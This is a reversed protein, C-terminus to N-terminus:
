IPRSSVATPTGFSGCTQPRSRRRTSAREWTPCCSRRRSRHTESACEDGRQGPELEECVPQHRDRNLLAVTVYDIKTNRGRERRDDTPRRRRERDQKGNRSPERHGPRVCLHGDTGRGPDIRATPRPTTGVAVTVTYTGNPVALEWAGAAAVGNFGTVDNGQMHMFTSLRLDPNPISSPPNSRNRGNGVLNLPTSTGPVVWGYSLGTGQNANSRLGYSQGWDAVYGAPPVTAQDQFNVKIDVQVTSAAPVASVAAAQAKNWEHRGVRRCLLLDHREPPRYRPLGSDVVAFFREAAREASPSRPRATSTTGPM